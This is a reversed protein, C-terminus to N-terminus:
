PTVTPSETTVSIEGTLPSYYLIPLNDEAGYGSTYYYCENSGTYWSVIDSDSPLMYGTDKAFSDDSRYQPASALIGLIVIVVILEILTFGFHRKM